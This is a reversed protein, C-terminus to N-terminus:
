EFTKLKLEAYYIGNKIFDEQENLTCDRKYDKMRNLFAEVRWQEANRFLEEFYEKM